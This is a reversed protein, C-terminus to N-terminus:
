SLNMRVQVVQLTGVCFKEVKSGKSANFSRSFAAFRSFIWGDAMLASDSTIPACRWAPGTLSHARVCIWLDLSWIETFCPLCRDVTSLALENISLLVLLGVASVRVM